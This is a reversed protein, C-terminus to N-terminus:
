SEEAAPARVPYTGAVRLQDCHERLASCTRILRSDTAHGRCDLWLLCATRGAPLSYLGLVETRARALGQLVQTLSTHPVTLVLSTVDNGTPTKSVPARRALVFRTVPAQEKDPVDLIHLRYHEAARRTCVAAEYAADPKLLGAAAASTSAASVTAVSPLVSTLWRRTQALAQPHSAVTTVAALETGPATALVWEVPLSTQGVIGVESTVALVCLVETVAGSVSNAVPLVAEDARGDLLSRVVEELSDLILFDGEVPAPLAEAAQQSVSGAPGLFARRAPAQCRGAAPAPDAGRCLRLISLAIDSGAPGLGEGYRTVIANERRSDTRCGGNVVRAEQILASFSVREKLFRIIQQDLEDLRGRAQVIEKECGDYTDEVHSM